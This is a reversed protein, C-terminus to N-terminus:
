GGSSESIRRGALSHIQDLGRSDSLSRMVVMRPGQRRRGVCISSKLCAFDTEFLEASSLYLASM